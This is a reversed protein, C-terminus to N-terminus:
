EEPKNKRGIADLEDVSHDDLALVMATALERAAEGLTQSPQTLLPEHKHVEHYGIPHQYPCAPRSRHVQPQSEKTSPTPHAIPPCESDM